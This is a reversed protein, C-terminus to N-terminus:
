LSRVSWHCHLFNSSRFTTATDPSPNKEFCAATFLARPRPYEPDQRGCLGPSPAGAQGPSGGPPAEGFPDRGSKERERIIRIKRCSSRLLEGAPGSAVRANGGNKPSLMQGRGSMGSRDRASSMM